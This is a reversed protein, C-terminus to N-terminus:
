EALPRNVAAGTDLNISVLAETGANDTGALLLPGDGPIASILRVLPLATTWTASGQATIRTLALGAENARHLILLGPAGPPRIPESDPHPSLTLFGAQGLTAAEFAIPTPADLRLATNAPAPPAARAASSQFGPDPAAVSGPVSALAARFLRQAAAPAQGGGPLFRAGPIAPRRTGAVPPTNAPPLGFWTDGIRAETVRFPAPARLDYPATTRPPPLAEGTAPLPEARLTRPHFRLPGNPTQLMLGDAAMWISLRPQALVGGLDPTLTVLGQREILVQGDVASVAGITDAFIWVTAAHEGLLGASPAGNAAVSAVPATFLPALTGADFGRVELRDGSAPARSESAPLTETEARRVLVMLRDQGALTYRLFPPSWRPPGLTVPFGDEEEDDFIVAAAIGGGVLLAGGGWLWTRRSIPM